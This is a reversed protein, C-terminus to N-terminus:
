RMWRLFWPRRARVLARDVVALADEHTTGPYDNFAIISLRKRSGPGQVWWDPLERLIVDRPVEAEFAAESLCFKQKFWPGGDGKHWREPTAILGRMRTLRDQLSM